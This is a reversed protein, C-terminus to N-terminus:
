DGEPEKVKVKAECCPSKGLVMYIRDTPDFTNGCKACMLKVPGTIRKKRGGGSLGFFDTM